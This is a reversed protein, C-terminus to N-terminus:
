GVPSWTVCLSSSSVDKLAGFTFKTRRQFKLEFLTKSKEIDLLKRSFALVLQHLDEHLTRPIRGLTV